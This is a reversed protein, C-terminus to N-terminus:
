KNEDLIKKVKLARSNDPNRDLANEIMIKARKKEGLKTYIEALNILNKVLEPNRIRVREGMDAAKRFEAAMKYCCSAIYIIEVDGPRLYIYDEAVSAAMKYRKTKVYLRILQHLVTPNSNDENYLNELQDIAELKKGEQTLEKVRDFLESNINSTNASSDPLIESKFTVKIMSFDDFQEGDNFLSDVIKELQGKQMEIHKMIMFEDENIIRNGKDDEGIVLNDRGDSGVFISDGPQLHFTQIHITGEMGTTGLKRFHTDTEIFKAVGDRFLITWPHEANIYYMFGTENEVLGMVLSVLMSGDFSEFVKHLELFCNKIWKEPFQQRMASSLRTREIITHFVAGLVLAGGAGQMSKGMADANIFVTYVKGRLNINHAVNLDGGIETRWKRFTFTKEQKVIFEVKVDKDIVDNISLPKILLSTLFYDGDQKIKLAKVEELTKQLEKTRDTVKDELEEAYIKLRNNAERISALMKNFSRTLFGIEDEVKVPVEVDYINQNVITVGDLLRNLPKLLAGSFFIRFGILVFLVLGILYTTFLWGSESINARYNKYSFGMEIISQKEYHPVSFTVFHNLKDVSNRYIRSMPLRIEVLLKKVFAKAAILNNNAPTQLFANLEKNLEEYYPKALGNDALLMKLNAITKSKKIANKKILRNKDLAKIFKTYALQADKAKIFSEQNLYNNVAAKLANFEKSNNIFQKKAIERMETESDNNQLMGLYYTQVLSRRNSEVNYQASNNFYATTSQLNKIPLESILQIDKPVKQSNERYLAVKMGQVQDYANEKIQLGGYSMFELLLLMTALSIGIIKAMFTSKDTTANIYVIVAIFFGLVSLLSFSIVFIDRGVKGDRSAINFYAPVLTVVMFAILIIAMSNKKPDKIKFYRFLGTVGVLLANSLIYLGVFFSPRDLSFDWYHGDFHYYYPASLTLYAFGMSVLTGLNFQVILFISKLKESASVPFTLLFQVACTTALLSGYVTFCRHYAAWQSYVM